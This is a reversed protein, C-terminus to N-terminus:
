ARDGYRSQMLAICALGICGLVVLYVIVYVPSGGAVSLLSTAILPALGGGLTGAVQASLSIGSYRVEAPFQAAFLPPEPAYLISFVVGVAIVIALWVMIPQRTDLMAFFPYAFLCMVLMGIFFVTRQGILDSVYGALPMVLLSVAAGAMVASLAESKPLHLFTTVYSIVFTSVTYFWANEAVRAGIISLVARPHHRLVELVPMRHQRGETKLREFDPSEPVRIRILWGIGLLLASALFPLRWGWSLMSAEPLLSVATMAGSALILGPGVGMQPLAGFFGKRGAPAHEVAMLVAGGWEGGVAIGQILRMVVLLIAAWYGIMNYTPLLGILTTPVGMLLLTLLLMSKRGIRDGFHGFVIGGLPRGIFGVAYTAFAALTGMLPSLAPFFIKNFILAAATGYLFFDFWEVTTGVMSSWGALVYSRSGASRDTDLGTKGISSM